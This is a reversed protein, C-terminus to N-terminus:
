DMIRRTEYQGQTGGLGATNDSLHFQAYSTGRESCATPLVHYMSYFGSVDSMPSASFQPKPSPSPRKCPIRAPKDGQLRGDVLLWSVCLRQSTEM